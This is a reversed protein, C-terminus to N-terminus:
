GVVDAIERKDCVVRVVYIGDPHRTQVMLHLFNLCNRLIRVLRAQCSRSEATEGHDALGSQIGFHLRMRGFRPRVYARRLGRSVARGDWFFALAAM